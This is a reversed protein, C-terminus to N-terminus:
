PDFLYKTVEKKTVIEKCGSVIAVVGVDESIDMEKLTLSNYSTIQKNTIKKMPNYRISASSFDSTSGKEGNLIESHSLEELDPIESIEVPSLANGFMDMQQYGNRQDKKQFKDMKDQIINLIQARKLGM